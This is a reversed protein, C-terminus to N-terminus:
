KPLHMSELLEEFGSIKLFVVYHLCLKFFECM